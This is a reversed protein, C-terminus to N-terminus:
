YCLPIEKLFPYKILVFDKFRQPFIFEVEHKRVAFEGGIDQVYFGVDDAHQKYEPSHLSLSFMVIM